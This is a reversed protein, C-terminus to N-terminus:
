KRNVLNELFLKPWPYSGPKVTFRGQITDRSELTVVGPVVEGRVYLDKIGASKMIAVSTAGGTLCFHIDNVNISGSIYHMLKVFCASFFDPQDKLRKVPKDVTVSVVSRQKLLKLAQQHFLNEKGGDIIFRDKEWEAPLSLQPVNLTQLFTEAAIDKVTSGNFIVTFPRVSSNSTSIEPMETITYGQKELWAEFCEAAGACLDKDGTKRMYNDIDGKSEIDATIFSRAPLDNSQQLHVHPLDFRHQELLDKVLSSQVPFDPDNAFVSKGLLVDNVYYQGSFIKRQRGPNAPLLLVRNYGLEQQLINIEAAIHGRMVSDVKKFLKFPGKYNKLQHSIKRISEIAGDEKIVRTDTDIVLLDTDNSIILETQVMARLGYRCAIGGMEAAGSFDDALVIIM